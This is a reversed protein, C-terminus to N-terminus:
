LNCTQMVHGCAHMSEAPTVKPEPNPGPTIKNIATMLKSQETSQSLSEAEVSISISSTRAIIRPNAFLGSDDAATLEAPNSQNVVVIL